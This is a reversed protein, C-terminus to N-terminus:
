DVYSDIANWLKIKLDNLRARQVISICVNKFNKQRSQWAGSMGNKKKAKIKEASHLLFNESYKERKEEENNYIVQENYRLSFKYFFIFYFLYIVGCVLSAICFHHWFYLVINSLDDPYFYIWHIKKKRRIKFHTFSFM